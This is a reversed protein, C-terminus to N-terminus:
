EKQEQKGGKAHHHEQDHTHDHAHADAKAPAKEEKKKSGSAQRAAEQAQAKTMRAEKRKAKAAHAEKIRTVTKESANAIAFGKARAAEIITLKKRGGLQGNLIVSHSKPDLAALAAITAVNTPRLGAKDLGRVAVPTQYGGRLPKRYGKRNDGIKSHLGKPSRWGEKMSRKHADQRIFKPQRRKLTAKVKLLRQKENTM